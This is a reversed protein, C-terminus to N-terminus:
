HHQQQRLRGYEPVPFLLSSQGVPRPATAATAAAGRRRLAAAGHGSSADPRRRRHQRYRRRSSGRRRRCPQISRRRRRGDRSHHQRGRLQQAAPTRPRSNRRGSRGFSFELDEQAQCPPQQVVGTGQSRDIKDQIFFAVGYGYVTIYINNYKKRM